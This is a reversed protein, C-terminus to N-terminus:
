LLAPTSHGDLMRSWNVVVVAICTPIQSSMVLHLNRLGESLDLTRIGIVAEMTKMRENAAGRTAMGREAWPGWQVSFAEQSHSRRLAAISDLTANAAAYNAQGILQFLAVISSFLACVCVPAYAYVRHLLLSGYAKPAYVTALLSFKQQLLLQDAVVGAAHWLGTSQLVGHTSAVLKFMHTRQALDCRQVLPEPGLGPGSQNRLQDIAESAIEGGRSSLTIARAGLQILWRAVLLGLGGVGGTIHHSYEVKIQSASPKFDSSAAALRPVLHTYRLEIGETEICHETLHALVNSSHIDKITLPLSMEARTSRVLGWLGACLSKFSQYQAGCTYVRISRTCKGIMQGQVIDLVAELTLLSGVGGNRHQTKIAVGLVLLKSEDLLDLGRSGQEISASSGLLILTVPCTTEVFTPWEVVYLHREMV